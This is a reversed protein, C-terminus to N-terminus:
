VTAAYSIRDTHAAVHRKERQPNKRNTKSYQRRRKLSKEKTPPIIPYQGPVIAERDGRDFPEIVNAHISKPCLFRLIPGIGYDVWATTRYFYVSKAGLRSGAQAMVCAAGNGHAQADCAVAIDTETVILHLPELADGYGREAAADKVFQPLGNHPAKYTIEKSNFKPHRYKASM